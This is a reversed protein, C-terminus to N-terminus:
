RIRVKFSVDQGDGPQLPANLTWRLTTYSDAPAPVTEDAGSAGKRTITVPFAQWSKGGDLSAEIRAGDKAVSDVVLVTGNPIPDEIRTGVAPGSGTNTARLTYVLVDGTAAEDAPKLEVTKKGSTDARVVEKHAQITVEVKPTTAFAAATWLATAAIAGFRMSVSM